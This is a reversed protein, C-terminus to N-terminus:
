RYSAGAAALSVDGDLVFQMVPTMAHWNLVVDWRVLRATACDQQPGGDLFAALDTYCGPTVIMQGAFPVSSAASRWGDLVVAPDVSTAGLRALEGAAAQVASQAFFLIAVEIVGVLMLAFVGSVIAMEIAVAGAETSSQGKIIARM